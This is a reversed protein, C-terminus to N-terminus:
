AASIPVTRPTGERNDNRPEARTEVTAPQKPYAIRSHLMSLLTTKFSNAVIKLEKLSLDCEDLQGDAVRREIVDHIM